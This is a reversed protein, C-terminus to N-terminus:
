GDMSFKWVTAQTGKGLKDQFVYHRGPYKRSEIAKTKEKKHSKRQKQPGKSEEAGVEVTATSHSSQKRTMEEVM